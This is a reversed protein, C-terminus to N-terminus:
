NSRVFRVTQNLAFDRRVVHQSEYDFLDHSDRTWTTSETYVTPVLQSMGLSWVSVSTRLSSKISKNLGSHV